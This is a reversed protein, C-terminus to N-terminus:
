GPAEDRLRDDHSTVVVPYGDPETVLLNGQVAAAPPHALIKAVARMLSGQPLELLASARVAERGHEGVELLGTVVVELDEGSATPGELALGHAQGEKNLEETYSMGAGGDILHHSGSVNTGLVDLVHQPVLTAELGASWGDAKA